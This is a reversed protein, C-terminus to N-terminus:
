IDLSFEELLDNIIIPAGSEISKQAAYGLVISWFGEEATAVSTQKGEINDIFYKHEFFTAGSHGSEEIYTPYCPQSILSTSKEGAKIELYTKPKIGSLYDISEYCHLYGDEGNVMLEEYFQPSFMCLTFGARVENEYDICVVANDLIDSKRGKYEFQKFNVAMSGTAYVKKPKSQAFLNLLDFYHCCKEVLTGGSYENFKNWQNVKDLFPYRHESIDIMKIAGLRKHVLAEQIAEVYMAKYRYELGIQFVAPYNEAIKYIEYADPITTAMPKELLIHKESKIAARIVSIHSFNPTAIILGDAEPAMCANELTDYVKLKQELNIQSLVKQAAVVSRPNPDYVGHITGRGELYTTRLHEIGMMGSGIINFKYKPNPLAFIYKDSSPLYKLGLLRSFYNNRFEKGHKVM